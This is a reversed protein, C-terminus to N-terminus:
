QRCCGFHKYIDTGNQAERQMHEKQRSPVEEERRKLHMHHLLSLILKSAVKIQIQITVRSSVLGGSAKSAQSYFLIILVYKAPIHQPKSTIYRFAYLVTNTM